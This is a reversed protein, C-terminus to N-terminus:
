GTPLHLLHVPSSVPLILWHLFPGLDPDIPIVCKIRNVKTDHKFNEVLWHALNNIGVRDAPDMRYM